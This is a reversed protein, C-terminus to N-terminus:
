GQAIREIPRLNEQVQDVSLHGADFQLRARQRQLRGGYHAAREGVGPELELKVGFCGDLNGDVGVDGPIGRIGGGVAVRVVIQVFQHLVKVVRDALGREVAADDRADVLDPVLQRAVRGVRVTEHVVNEHDGQGFGLDG